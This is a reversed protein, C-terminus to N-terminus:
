VGEARARRPWPPRLRRLARAPLEALEGREALLLVAPLVLLVGILSVVLDIVTVFGFDRLMRIDSLVLVAFGAIATVGSAIVARGTSAYTRDLAAEPTAGAAREQRYREALLVSFETTIAIVLAGLTVSMPNLPVRTLFLVLASWGSALAIPILPVLARQPRRFIALLVLAVALLGAILTLLRRWDSAVKDNAEAALVPLGALSATVGAPPHLRRRMEDFVQKQEDLPLLRIGFALTATRRDATIVAQSFYAPVADLLARIRARDAGSGSARFLDPLSLAPCLKARGCGRASTYGYRKLLGSQYDRMWGVVAPRTLDDAEVVVDVEGAVGTTKQLESLDRLAGLDQPVLKQIDSVVKTQTDAVLGAVCLVAAIALVREPRRRSFALAGRAGAGIRRGAAGLPRVRLLLDRAGRAAGTTIEGAGRAAPAVRRGAAGLPGPVAGRGAIALVACGATVACAFAVVIGVVLLLGFGRVMPVPSLLLVLFGAGTAAVAGAITPGGATTARVIAGDPPEDPGDRLREEDYRSQFQIAYDVGLGILVPLVAISAMTLSAGILAMGGFLLGAAALAILLPLLRLRTRFVVALTLAMVLLAGILLLVISDTIKATLDSVVVPAGTVVYHAGNAPRFERMQTAQRILSIAHTREAESLDPRLRIQILASDKNPFLYAFRAKPVGPGRTPDFVLTSVFDPDNLQPLSRIGYNLALRLADRLFQAQVLKRAEAALRDQESKPLGKSKALARAADAARKERAASDQQQAVFQEQIQRVAENIFTGPGYVVRVPKDRGFAACVGRRGGPPTVNRPINGAICGELSLVRQIDSTLVTRTLDGKVLVLVADDGFREHYRETAKFTDSGRGVLTDTGASPELGLALGGGALALLVVVAVVAWPRRTAARAARELGGKVSM